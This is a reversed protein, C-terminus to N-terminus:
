ESKPAEGAPLSVNVLPLAVRGEVGHFKKWRAYQTKITNEDFSQDKGHQMVYAIPAPQGLSKSIADILAWVKGCVTDPKPQRVGNQEPMKAAEKALRKEEAEKEKLAKAEAKKAEAALKAEAKEKEKAAKEEAKAKEKAAKEEAKVRDKEAKDAAKKADAAEKALRKEEAKKAAEQEAKLKEDAAKKDAAAKKAAEAAADGSKVNANAPTPVGNNEKM